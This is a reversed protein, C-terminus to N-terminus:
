KKWGVIKHITDYSLTVSNAPKVVVSENNSLQIETTQSYTFTTGSWSFKMIHIYVETGANNNYYLLIKGSEQARRIKVSNGGFDTGRGAFVEIYDYNNVNDNLTYDGYERINGDYLVNRNNDLDYIGEDMINLNVANIPTDTSPLDEWNVRTYAM